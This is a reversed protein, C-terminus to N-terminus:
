LTGYKKGPPYRLAKQCLFPLTANCDGPVLGAESMMTCLGQPQEGQLQMFGELSTPSSVWM